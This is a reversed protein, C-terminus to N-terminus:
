ETTIVALSAHRRQTTQLIQEQAIDAGGSVCLAGHQLRNPMSRNKTCGYELERGVRAVCTWGEVNDVTTDGAGCLPGGLVWRLQKHRLGGHSAIQAEPVCLCGGRCGALGRGRLCCGGCCLAQGRPREADICWVGSDARTRLRRVEYASAIPAGAMFAAPGSARGALRGAWACLKM